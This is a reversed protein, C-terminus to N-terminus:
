VTHGDTIYVQRTRLFSARRGYIIERMPQCGQDVTHSALLACGVRALSRRIDARFARRCLNGTCQVRCAPTYIRHKEPDPGMLPAAM